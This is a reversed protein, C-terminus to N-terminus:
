QGSGSRRSSQWAPALDVFAPWRRAAQQLQGALEVGIFSLAQIAEQSKDFRLLFAFHGDLRGGRRRRLGHAQHANMLAFSQFEGNHRHRIQALEEVEGVKVMANYKVLFVAQGGLDLRRFRGLEVGAQGPPQGPAALFPFYQAFFHAQEVHGHGAGAM